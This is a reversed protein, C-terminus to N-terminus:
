KGNGNNKRNNLWASGNINNQTNNIKSSSLRNISANNEQILKGFEPTQLYASVLFIQLLKQIKRLRTNWDGSKRLEAKLKSCFTSQYHPDRWDIKRYKEQLLQPQQEQIDVVAQYLSLSIEDIITSDNVLPLISNDPM